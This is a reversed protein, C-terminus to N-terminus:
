AGNNQRARMVDCRRTEWANIRNRLETMHRYALDFSFPHKNSSGDFAASSENYYMGGTTGTTYKYMLDRTLRSEFHTNLKTPDCLVKTILWRSLDQHTANQNINAPMAESQAVKPPSLWSQEIPITDTQDFYNEWVKGSKDWQYHELFRERTEKGKNQREEESLSLFETFLKAALDNDPVARYCGTELEKYLAKPKVPIGGLKRVVSEMASYDTSMVPVACAAAEVQPLGFGECNAYQVYLDFTNIIASLDEYSAGRKANTLTGNWKGTYPSQTMAGRFLSVFPKLTDGCIYTFYVRSSLNYQQLLEPIDWGLDPYSTHCYLYTDTRQTDDLMKRFAEFLDPYLKRRQNRMVTGIIKHNPDIGMKAKHAKKDEVPKYAPHASPPSSGLYNIKGGSQRELVGGAWDSYTLCADASQYTAIWQRAQPAADVTPMVVWRFYNRFPSREAFDLMWFDRIDCVFDPMFDLCVHEFLAEGFQNSPKSEYDQLEEQTAKPECTTNPMVGYYKWPIDKARPDNREGYSSMEALEYKGTSHLYNLTERIYTAYGTNLFTAEGCFLVRKKRV